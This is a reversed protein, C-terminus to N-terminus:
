MGLVRRAYERNTKAGEYNSVTPTDNEIVLYGDYGTRKLLELVKPFDIGKTGLEYFRQHRDWEHIWKQRYDEADV